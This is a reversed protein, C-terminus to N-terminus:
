ATVIWSRTSLPTKVSIYSKNDRNYIIYIDLFYKIDGLEKIIFKSHLKYIFRDLEVSKKAIVLFDDVYTVVLIRAQRNIYVCSDMVLPEFGLTKLAARLTNQWLRPSQKLSYLAQLLLMVEEETAKTGAPRWRPPLEVYIKADTKAEFFATKVDM